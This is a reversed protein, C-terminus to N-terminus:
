KSVFNQEESLGTIKPAQRRTLLSQVAEEPFHRDGAMERLRSQSNHRRQTRWEASRGRSGAETGWARGTGSHRCSTEELQDKGSPLKQWGVCTEKPFIRGLDRSGPPAPPCQCRRHGSPVHPEARGHPSPAGAAAPPEPCGGQSPRVCVGLTTQAVCRLLCPSPTLGCLPRRQPSWCRPPASPVCTGRIRLQATNNTFLAAVPLDWGTMETGRSGQEEQSQQEGQRYAKKELEGARVRM